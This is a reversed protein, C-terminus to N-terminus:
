GAPGLVRDVFANSFKGKPDRASRLAAFDTLRPYAAALEDAGAVFCKGWHPRAGLPMLVSEVLRLVAYVADEDRHWTFHFAVADRDCSGSLWLDDAAVTRIESVQLVPALDAALSRMEQIGARAQDRPLFYESQLEEGSSPTFAMRFHPLREHWPGPVGLQATVAAPDMGALMHLTGTAPTADFLEVVPASRSKVWVQEIGDVWRTFLSVSYAAAMIEELHLDLSEWGLDTLQTSSVLYTPEIDLVLSVVVGLAGLAVVSGTFDPDGRRLTVLDGEPGVLDLARVSAALSQNTVGSGHTGTAVAGAISIHPLSALNALAWGARDLEVALEGYRIGGSVSVARATSDIEIGAPLLDLRVLEGESDGLSTFSHGTGLARVRDAGAVVSQVEAVTAPRSITRARYTYNGAWNTRM